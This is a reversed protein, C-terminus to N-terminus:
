SSAVEVLHNYDRIEVWQRGTQILATQQFQSMVRSASEPTTGTMDAIDQRSLPLQILLGDPQPEGFKESLKLLLTAIRQEVSRISLQQITEYAAKLRSATIELAVLAVSPFRKLIDEFDEAAISLICVATQSQATDSYVDEGLVSLSGFFEGSKMIDLVVDQGTDTHRLLKVKGSAVIYLRTAHDGAFYITQGTLFGKDRFYVNIETITEQSLDRFFPVRQLIDLRMNLDCHAPEVYDDHLPTHRKRDV